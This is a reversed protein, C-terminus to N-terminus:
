FEGPGGIEAPGCNGDGLLCGDVIWFLGCDVLGSIVIGAPVIRGTRNAAKDDDFRLVPSNILAVIM